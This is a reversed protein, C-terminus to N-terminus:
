GDVWCLFALTYTMMEHLDIGAELADNNGAICVWIIKYSNSGFQTQFIHSIIHMKLYM